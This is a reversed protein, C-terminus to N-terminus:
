KFLGRTGLTMTAVWRRMRGSWGSAAVGCGLAAFFAGVLVAPLGKFRIISLDSLGISVDQDIIASAGFLFLIAGTILFFVRVLAPLRESSPTDELSRMAAAFWSFCAALFPPVLLRLLLTQQKITEIEEPDVVCADAVYGPRHLCVPDFIVALMAAAPIATWALFAYMAKRSREDERGALSLGFTFAIIAFPYHLFFFPAGLLSDGVLFFYANHLAGAVCAFVLFSKSSQEAKEM